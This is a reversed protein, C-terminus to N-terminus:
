QTMKKGWVVLDYYCACVYVHVNFLVWRYIICASNRCTDCNATDQGTRYTLRLLSLHSSLHSWWHCSTAGNMKLCNQKTGATLHLLSSGHDWQERLNTQCYLSSSKVHQLLIVEGQCWNLIHKSNLCPRSLQRVIYRIYTFENCKPMRSKGFGYILSLADATNIAPIPPRYEIKLAM